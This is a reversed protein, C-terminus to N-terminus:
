TRRWFLSAQGSKLASPVYFAVGDERLAHQWEEGKTTELLYWDIEPGLANPVGSHAQYVHTVGKLAQRRVLPLRSPSALKVGDLPIREGPQNRKILLYVESASRVEPPLPSCVFQGDKVVFSKHTSRTAEPQFSRKLLRIWGDLGQALDEHQYVPMQEDPLM